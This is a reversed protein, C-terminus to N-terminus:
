SWVEGRGAVFARCENVMESMEQDLKADFEEGWTDAIIDASWFGNDPTPDTFVYHVRGDGFNVSHRKELYATVLIATPVTRTSGIKHRVPKSM